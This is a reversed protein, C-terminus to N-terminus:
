LGLKKPSQPLFVLNSALGPLVPLCWELCLHIEEFSMVTEGGRVAPLRIQSNTAVEQRAMIQHERHNQWCEGPRQYLPVPSGMGAKM